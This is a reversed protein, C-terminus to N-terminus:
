IFLFSRSMIKPLCSLIQQAMSFKLYRLESIFCKLFSTQFLLFTEKFLFYITGSVYIIWKDNEHLSQVDVLNTINSNDSFFKTKILYPSTISFEMVWVFISLLLKFSMLCDFIKRIYMLIRALVQTFMLFCFNFFTGPFDETRCFDSRASRLINCWFLHCKM